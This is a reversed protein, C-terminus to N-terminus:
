NIRITTDCAGKQEAHALARGLAAHLDMAQLLPMDIRLYKDEIGIGRFDIAVRPENPSVRHFLASRALCVKGVARSLRSARVFNTILAM